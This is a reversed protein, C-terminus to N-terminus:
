MSHLDDDLAEALAKIINIAIRKRVKYQYFKTGIVLSVKIYGDGMDKAVATEIVPVIQESM